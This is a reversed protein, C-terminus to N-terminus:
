INEISEICYDLAKHLTTLKLILPHKDNYKNSPNNMKGIDPYRVSSVLKESIINILFLVMVGRIYEDFDLKFERLIKEGYSKFLRDDDFYKIQELNPEDPNLLKLAEYLDSFSEIQNIDFPLDPKNNLTNYINDFISDLLQNEPTKNVVDKLTQFEKDVDFNVSIPNLKQHKLIASRFIQSTKHSIKNQLDTPNIIEEKLGLFKILKEVSQQFYFLSQPYLRNEYLVRSADLDEKSIDLLIRYDKEMQRM